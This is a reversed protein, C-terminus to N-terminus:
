GSLPAAVISVGSSQKTIISEISDNDICGLGPLLDGLPQRPPLDLLM